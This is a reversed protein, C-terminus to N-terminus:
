FLTLNKYAHDICDLLHEKSYELLDCQSHKIGITYPKNQIKAYNTLYNNTHKLFEERDFATLSPALVIFFSGIYRTYIYHDQGSSLLASSLIRLSFDAELIGHSRAIDSFNDIEISFISLAVQENESNELYLQAFNSFGTRNFLGTIEDKYHIDWANTELEQMHKYDKINKLMYNIIQIWKVFTFPFDILDHTYHISIFGYHKAEYYLPVFVQVKSSTNDLFSHVTALDKYTANVLLTDQEIGLVLSISHTTDSLDDYLFMYFDEISDHNMIFTQLQALGEELDTTHQLLASMHINKLLSAELADIRDKLTTIATIPSREKCNACGCSQKYMPVAKVIEPTYDMDEDILALLYTFAATGAEYSPFSITTLTPSITEGFALNDCGTVIIDQPVRIKRESLLEMVHIAMQDNYCVIAEPMEHFAVDLLPTIAEKISAKTFDSSLIMNNTVDLAYTQMASLYAVQRSYSIDHEISNGLFVIKSKHHITYIHSVLDGIMTNNDIRIKLFPSFPSSIDVIPRTCNSLKRLLAHKIPAVLYTSSSLLIGDYSELNPIQLIGAEGMGYDGIIEEDNSVFFDIHFGYEKASDIIGDCVGRQFDGYIHSIFVAIKHTKKM